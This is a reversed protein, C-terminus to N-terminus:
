QEGKEVENEANGREIDREIVESDLLNVTGSPVPVVVACPEPDNPPYPYPPDNRDTGPM